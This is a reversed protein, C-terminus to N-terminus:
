AALEPEVAEWWENPRRRTRSVNPWTGLPMLPHHTHSVPRESDVAVVAEAAMRGGQRATRGGEEEALHGGVEVAMQGGEEEEVAM